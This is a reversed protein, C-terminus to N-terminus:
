RNTILAAAIRLEDYSRMASVDRVFSALDSYSNRLISLTEYVPSVACPDQGYIGHFAFYAQNLKRIRYGNEVFLMRRSEMYSEAANVQGSALLLNVTSRTQRMEADFDFGQPVESEISDLDDARYYRDYVKSGIEEAIVGAVTENMNIVDTSQSFGLCDLLYLFGLPRFTLYQHAWEEVAASVVRKKPMDQSVVAPYAAGFGGLEVVLSSLGLADIKDEILTIQSMDMNPVLLLRDFYLIQNKPSVVLLQPPKTARVNVPPMIGLNEEKVIISINRALIEDSTNAQGKLLTGLNELEWETWKLTYPAAIKRIENKYDGGNAADTQLASGSMCGMGLCVFLGCAMLLYSIRLM